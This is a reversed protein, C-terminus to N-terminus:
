DLKAGFAVRSDTNTSKPQRATRPGPLNDFATAASRSDVGTTRPAPVNTSLCPNGAEIFDILQQRSFRWLKGIRRGPLVARSAMQRVTPPTLRLFEAAEEVSLIADGGEHSANM